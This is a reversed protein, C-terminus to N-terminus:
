GSRASHVLRWSFLRLLISEVYRLYPKLVPSVIQNRVLFLMQLPWEAHRGHDDPLSQLLRLKLTHIQKAIEISKEPSASLLGSLGYGGSQRM